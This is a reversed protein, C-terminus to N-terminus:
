IFIRLVAIDIKHLCQTHRWHCVLEIPLAGDHCVKYTTCSVWKKLVYICMHVFIYIVKCM